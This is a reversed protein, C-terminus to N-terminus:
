QALVERGDMDLLGTGKPLDRLIACVHPERIILLEIGSKSPFILQEGSGPSRFFIVVDGPKVVLPATTGNAVIRGHGVALVEGRLYPTNDRAIQPVILGSSTTEDGEIVKVLLRDYLLQVDAMM